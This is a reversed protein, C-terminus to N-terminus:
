LKVIPQNLKIENIKMKEWKRVAEKVSLYITKGTFFCHHEYRYKHNIVKCLFHNKQRCLENLFVVLNDKAKCLFDLDLCNKYIVYPTKDNFMDAGCCYLCVVKGDCECNELFYKQINLITNLIFTLQSQRKEFFEVKSPLKFEDFM